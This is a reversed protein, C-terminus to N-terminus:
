MAAKKAPINRALATGCKTFPIEPLGNGVGNAAGGPLPSEEGMMFTNHANNFISMPYKNNLNPLTFLIFASFLNDRSMKKAPITQILMM